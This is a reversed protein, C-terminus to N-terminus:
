PQGCTAASARALLTLKRRTGDRSSPLSFPPQQQRRGTEWVVPRVLQERYKLTGEADDLAMDDDEDEVVDEDLDGRDIDRAPRTVQFKHLFSKINILDEESRPAPPHFHTVHERPPHSQRTPTRVLRTRPRRSPPSGHYFCSADLPLPPTTSLPHLPPPTTRLHVRPTNNILHSSTYSPIFRLQLSSLSLSSCSDVRRSEIQAELVGRTPGGRAARRVTLGEGLCRRVREVLKKPEARSWRPGQQMIVDEQGLSVQSSSTRSQRRVGRPVVTLRYRMLSHEDIQSM